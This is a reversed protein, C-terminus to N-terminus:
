CEKGVRREESRWEPHEERFWVLRAAVPLYYRGGQVKILYRKVNYAMESTTTHSRSTGM